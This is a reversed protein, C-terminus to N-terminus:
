HARDVGAIDARWLTLLLWVPVALGMLYWPVDDFLWRDQEWLLAAFVAAFPALFVLFFLGIFEM